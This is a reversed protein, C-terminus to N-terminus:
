VQDKSTMDPLSHRSIELDEIQSPLRLELLEPEDRTLGYALLLRSLDCRHQTITAPPEPRIPAVDGLLNPHPMEEIFKSHLQTACGGGTTLLQVPRSRLTPDFLKPARRPGRARHYVDGFHHDCARKFDQDSVQAERAVELAAAGLLEVGATFVSARARERLNFAVIDLTSAGVDVLMHAGSPAIPQVAYGSIAATLEPVLAFGLPLEPRANSHVSRVDRLQLDPAVAVLEFAAAVVRSFDDFARKDDQAAVPIGVNISLFHEGGVSGLPRKQDYRGLAYALELAMFATAAEAKSVQTDPSVRTRGRGAVLGTKFGSLPIAGDQPALTFRETAPDFWVVAQWLCPHGGSRLEPPATLARVPDDAQYPQRVALKLSSTGLDFGIIYGNDYDPAPRRSIIEAGIRVASEIESVRGADMATCRAEIVPTSSGVIERIRKAAEKQQAFPDAEPKRREPHRATKPQDKMAATAARKGPREVPVIQVVTKPVDRNLRALAAATLAPKKELTEARGKQSGSFSSRSVAVPAEIPSSTIQAKLKQLEEGFAGLKATAPRDRRM